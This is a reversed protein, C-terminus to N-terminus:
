VVEDAPQCVCGNEQDKKVPRFIGVAPCASGIVVIDPHILKRELCTGFQNLGDEPFSFNYGLQAVEDQSLSGSVRKKHFFQSM